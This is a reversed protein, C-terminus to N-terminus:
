TLGLQVFIEHCYSRMECLLFIWICWIKMYPRWHSFNVNKAKRPPPPPPQTAWLNNSWAWRAEWCDEWRYWDVHVYVFFISDILVIFNYRRSFWLIGWTCEYLPYLFFYQKFLKRDNLFFWSGVIVFFHKTYWKIMTNMHQQYNPVM